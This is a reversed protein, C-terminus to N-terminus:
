WAPQGVRQRLRSLAQGVAHWQFMERSTPGQNPVPLPYVEPDFLLDVGAARLTDM